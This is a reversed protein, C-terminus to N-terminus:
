PIREPRIRFFKASPVNTYAGPSATVWDILNTSCEMIINAGQGQPIVVTKDPPFSEPTIKLTCMVNEGSSSNRLRITAPGTVIPTGLAANVLSPTLEASGYGKIIDLRPQNFAPFYVLEATETPKVIFDNTIPGGGSYNSGVTLTVYRIQANASCILTLLAVIALHRLITKM